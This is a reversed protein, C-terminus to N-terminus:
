NQRDPGFLIAAGGISKCGIEPIRKAPDVVLMEPGTRHVPISRIQGVDNDIGWFRGWHRELEAEYEFPPLRARRVDQHDSRPGLPEPAFRQACTRRCILGRHVQGFM